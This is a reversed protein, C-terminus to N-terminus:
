RSMTSALWGRLAFRDKSPPYLPIFLLAVPLRNAIGTSAERVQAAMLPVLTFISMRIDTDWTARANPNGNRQSDCATCCESSLRSYLYMYQLATAARGSLRTSEAKIPQLPRRAALRHSTSALIWCHRTNNVKVLSSHERSCNELYFVSRILVRLSDFHDTRQLPLLLVIYQVFVAWSALRATDGSLSVVLANPTSAHFAM